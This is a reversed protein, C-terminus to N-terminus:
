GQRRRHITLRQHQTTEANAWVSGQRHRRPRRNQHLLSCLDDHFAAQLGDPRRIRGDTEDGGLGDVSAIPPDTESEGIVARPLQFMAEKFPSGDGDLVSGVGRRGEAV